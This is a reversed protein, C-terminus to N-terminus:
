QSIYNLKRLADLARQPLNQGNGSFYVAAQYGEDCREKRVTVPVFETRPGGTIQGELNGYMGRDINSKVTPDLETWFKTIAERAADATPFFILYGYPIREARPLLPSAEESKHEPSHM